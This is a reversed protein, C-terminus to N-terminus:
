KLPALTVDTVGVDDRASFSIDSVSLKPWFAIMTRSGAIEADVLSGGAKPDFKIILRVQFPKDTAILNEIAFQRTENIRGGARLSKQRDETGDSKVTAFQARGSQLDIGFRCREAASWLDVAIKGEPVIEPTVTFTLLFAETGTSKKSSADLVKASGTVPVAEPLWRSGIRGDSFQLLERLVLHGGWGHGDNTWGALIFRGGGIETVCPVNLGDYFDLGKRVVDEYASDPADVPKTWLNLFGGIISDYRGWRFFFTCDGGPPFDPSICRWGSDVRDSEWMGRGHNNALMRLKGGPDRYVSPNRCPHFFTWTKKFTSGGDESVSYTSGIPVGPAARTFAGSCGHTKIYKEQAPLTTQALPCIRETHLGYALCLKGDFVFPTGTGICEWQEEIPAAAEHETWTKFDATSLHEFYHAGKGFKSSHHRRDLLYFLHYRGKHYGTAVDGVWTNFGHPTWYQVEKLDRPTKARAEVQLAPAYLRAQRVSSSDITISSGASNWDPYGFPFDLDMQEGDAYLAWRVGTFTLAFEHTGYPEKLCALPFGVTMRKWDPHEPSSLFVTAEMVPVSGDPLRFNCYNLRTDADAKDRLSLTVQAMGPVDILHVPQVPRQIAATFVLTFGNTVNAPAVYEATPREPTLSVLAPQNTAFLYILSLMEVM